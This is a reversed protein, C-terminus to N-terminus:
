VLRFMSSWNDKMYEPSICADGYVDAPLDPGGSTAFYVFEGRDFRSEADTDKAVADRIFQHWVSVDSGENPIDRCFTIFRRPEVTIVLLGKPCVVRHLERIWHNAVKEPLHTFVSYAYSLDFLNDRYPLLGDPQIRALSAPVKTQRCVELMDSVVDVGYVQGYPVDRAFIRAYRGWGIGFDLVNNIARQGRIKHHSNKVFRYFNGAELLASENSSGVIKAQLADDPFCPFEVGDIVPDKVSRILTQIWQDDSQASFKDFVNAM